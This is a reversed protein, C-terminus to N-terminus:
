ISIKRFEGCWSFGLVLCMNNDEQGEYPPFMPPYRHCFGTDDGDQDLGATEYFLCARCKNVTGM